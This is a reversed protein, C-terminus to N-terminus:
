LLPGAYGILPWIEDRSYYGFFCLNRLALFAVRRLHIRSTMWGAISEDKEADSLGTFRSFRFDFLFPGLDFARILLPLPGALEPDLSACLADVSAVAGIDRVQPADVCGTDVMREMIQTLIEAEREDFFRLRDGTPAALVFPSRIQALATFAATSGALALFSRRTAAFRSGTARAPSLPSARRPSM